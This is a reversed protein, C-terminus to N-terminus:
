RKAEPKRILRDLFKLKNQPTCIYSVRELRVLKESDKKFIFKRSQNSNSALKHIFTHTTAPAFTPPKFPYEISKLHYKKQKRLKKNLESFVHNKFLVNKTRRQCFRRVVRQLAFMISPFGFIVVSEM